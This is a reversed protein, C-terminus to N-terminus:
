VCVRVDEYMYMCMCECVCVHVYVYMYMYMCTCAYVYTCVCMYTCVYMYICMRVHMYMCPVPVGYLHGVIYKTLSITINTMHPCYHVICQVKCEEGTNGDRYSIYVGVGMRSGVVVMSMICLVHMCVCTRVCACM